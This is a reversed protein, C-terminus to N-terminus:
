EKLITIDLLMLNVFHVINSFITLINKYLSIEDKGGSFQTWHLKFDESKLQENLQLFNKTNYITRPILLSGMTKIKDNGKGSEDFFLNVKM